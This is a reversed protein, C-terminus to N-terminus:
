AVEVAVEAGEGFGELFVDALEAEVVAYGEGVFVVTCFCGEHYVFVAVLAVATQLPERSSRLDVMMELPHRLATLHMTNAERQIIIDLM